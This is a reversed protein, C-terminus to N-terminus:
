TYVDLLIIHVAISENNLLHNIPTPMGYVCGNSAPPRDVQIYFIILCLKRANVLLLKQQGIFNHGM